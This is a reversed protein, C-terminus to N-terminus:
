VYIKRGKEERRKEEVSIYEDRYMCQVLYGKEPLLVGIIQYLAVITLRDQGM